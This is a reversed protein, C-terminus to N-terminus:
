LPVRKGGVCQELLASASRSFQDAREFEATRYGRDQLRTLIDRHHVEDLFRAYQSRVQEFLRRRRQRVAVAELRELPTRATWALLEEPSLSPHAGLVAMLSYCTLRRCYKLKLNRLRHLAETEASGGPRRRPNEYNVWLTYWYRCLDNQLFAPQFDARHAPYDGYYGAIVQRLAETYVAPNHVPRSEMLLLLRVTFDNTFDDMRSGLRRVLDRAAHTRLYRGNRTFEPFGLERGVAMLEARVRADEAKRGRRRPGTDVLFLDLDSGEGAELRGYSGCAIVTLSEREVLTSSGKIREALQRLRSESFERRDELRNLRPQIQDM